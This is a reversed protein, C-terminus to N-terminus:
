TGMVAEIAEYMNKRSDSRYFYDTSKREKNPGSIMDAIQSASDVVVASGHTVLWEPVYATDDRFILINCRFRTAEYLVTSTTGVIYDSESLSEYISYDPRDLIKIQRGFLFPYFMKWKGYESPHLKVVLEIKNLDILAELEIVNLLLQVSCNSIYTVVKKHKKTNHFKTLQVDLEPSGVPIVHSKPIPYMPKDVDFQGFTFIYDAFTKLNMKNYFNYAIHYGGINGHQLEVTPIGLDKAAEILLMRNYNYACVIIIVKPSIESLLHKYSKLFAERQNVVYFISSIISCKYQVPLHMEFDSEIKNILNKGYCDVKIHSTVCMNLKNTYEQLDFYKVWKTKIPSFHRSAYAEEFVYYSKYFGRLWEDTYLCKYYKGEKARRPHNFVLVDKHTVNCPNKFIAQDIRKLITKEENIPELYMNLNFRGLKLECIKMFVEFRIYHWFNIEQDFLQNETEWQLFFDNMYGLDKKM